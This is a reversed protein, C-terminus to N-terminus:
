IVVFTRGKLLGQESKKDDVSGGVCTEEVTITAHLISFMMAM